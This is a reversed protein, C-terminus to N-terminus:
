GIAEKNQNEVPGAAPRREQSIKRMIAAQKADIRQAAVYSFGGMPRFNLWWCEGRVTLLYERDEALEALPVYVLGDRKRNMASAYEGRTIDLLYVGNKRGLEWSRDFSTLVLGAALVRRRRYINEAFWQYLELKM